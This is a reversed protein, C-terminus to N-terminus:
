EHEQTIAQHHYGMSLVLQWNIFLRLPTHQTHIYVDVYM